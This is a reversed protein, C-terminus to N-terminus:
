MGGQVNKINLSMFKAVFAEIHYIAKNGNNARHEFIAAWHTTENKLSQDCKKTLEKLLGVFIVEAPICHSLLEYIRNRM